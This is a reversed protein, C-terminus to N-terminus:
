NDIDPFNVKKNNVLVSVLAGAAPIKLHEPIKKWRFEGTISYSGKQLKIQPSNNKKIVVVPKNNVKVNQPWHRDSGPLTIWTEYNILWEQKFKGGTSNATIKLETPWNCRLQSSNNHQPICLFEEEHDHLVWDVWPKLPEPIMPAEKAFAGPATLFVILCIVSIRILKM